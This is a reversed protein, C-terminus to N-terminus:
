KIWPKIDAPPKFCRVNQVNLNEPDNKKLYKNLIAFVEQNLVQHKRIRNM